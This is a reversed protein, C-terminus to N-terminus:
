FSSVKRGLTIVLSNTVFTSTDNVPLGISHCLPMSFVATFAVYLTKANDSPVFAQSIFILQLRLSTTFEIEM